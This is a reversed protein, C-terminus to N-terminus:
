CVIYKAATKKRKVTGELLSIIEPYKKRKTIGRRRIFILLGIKGMIVSFNTTM